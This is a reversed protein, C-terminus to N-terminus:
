MSLALAMVWFHPKINQLVISYSTVLLSGHRRRQSKVGLDDLTCIGRRSAVGYFEITQLPLLHFTLSRLAGLKRQHCRRWEVNSVKIRFRWCSFRLAGPVQFVARELKGQQFPGSQYLWQCSGLFIIRCSVTDYYIQNNSYFSHLNKWM